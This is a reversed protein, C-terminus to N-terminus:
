CPFVKRASEPPFDTFVFRISAYYAYDSINKHQYSIRISAIEGPQYTRDLTVTLTDLAHTYSVGAMSVSDVQLSTNVANLKISNLASDVKFTIVEKASFSKPYPSLFSAYIDMELKYKQVDYSHKMYYHATDVPMSVAATRVFLFLLLCSIKIPHFTRM